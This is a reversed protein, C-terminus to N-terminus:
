TVVVYGGNVSVFLQQAEFALNGWQAAQRAAYARPGAELTLDKFKTNWDRARNLFYQATWEM